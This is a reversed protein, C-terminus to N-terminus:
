EGGKRISKIKRLNNYILLVLVISTIVGWLMIDNELGMNPIGSSEVVNIWFIINKAPMVVTNDTVTITEEYNWTKDASGYGEINQIEELEYVTGINLPSGDKTQNVTSTWVVEDGLRAEYTVTYDIKEWKAYLVLDGTVLTEFDYATESLTVGNDSSTYWDLFTYGEKEPNEPKTVTALFKVDLEDSVLTGEDEDFFIDYKIRDYFVKLVLSGNGLVEGSLKREKHTTNEIFGTYEKATANVTAETKAQLNEIDDVVLSYEDNEINQQYHEIKYSTGDSPSWVAFVDVNKGPDPITVSIEIEGSSLRWGMFTYGVNTIGIEEISVLKVSEGPKHYETGHVLVDGSHYNVAYTGKYTVENASIPTAGWPATNDITTEHAYQNVHIATINTCNEFSNNEITLVGSGILVSSLNSADSFSSSGINLVSDPIELYLLSNTSSFAQDGINELKNPLTLSTINQVKSNFVNEAIALVDYDNIQNPIVLIGEQADQPGKYESITQTAEDFVFWYEFVAFVEVNGNAPMEVSETIAGGQTLSWGAFTHYEPVTFGVLLTQELDVITGPAYNNTSQIPSQDGSNYIIKGQTKYTIADPGVLKAGWPASDDITTEDKLQDVYISSIEHTGNMDNHSFANNAIKTVGSGIVVDRLMYAHAFALEGIERVSNPITLSSIKSCFGFAGYDIKTVGEPITISKLNDCHQFAYKAITELRSPLTLSTVKKIKGNFARPKITKIDIGGIKDPIILETLDKPFATTTTLGGESDVKYWSESFTVASALPEALPGVTPKIELQKEYNSLSSLKTLSIEEVFLGELGQAMIHKPALSSIMLIILILTIWRKKIEM